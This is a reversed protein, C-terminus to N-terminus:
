DAQPERLLYTMLDRVEKSDLGGLLGPPMLSISMPEISKVQARAIVNRNGGADLLQIEEPSERAVIGAFGTGDKLEIRYGANDPNITASPDEIDKLVSAYDRHVLNSLDPGVEGGRGRMLHCISCAARGYFLKEGAKWDGGALEPIVAKGSLVNGPSAWPVLVRRLPLARPRPDDGTSWHIELSPEAGPSTELAAEFPIWAKPSDAVLRVVNKGVRELRAGTAVKVDLPASATFLVEVTEATKIGNDESSGEQFVPRLMSQLDLQGRLHLRGSERLRAFFRAHEASPASLERAVHLDPHPLWLESREGKESPAWEAMVGSLDYALGIYGDQPLAASHGKLMQKRSRDPLSLSYQVAITRPQTRIFLSRADRSLAASVVPISEPPHELQRTVAVYGPRLKEYREGAVAYRGAQLSTEHSLSRWMAPDLPRDFEIRTETPSAPYILAPRAAGDVASLKFLRGPGNPGSGWDPKGTHAAVILDGTPSLACDVPMAQMGAFIQTQAVYGSSTKVLKTRYLKGRSMGTLLADDAWWAPGFRGASEASANFRFGCVSQHQPGYDFVSPEDIVDPLYKPHRPPFGYHRGSQIQLLEDFPNGNPLWTAGEQDSAFLDGERNIQLSVLYRVGTAIQTVSKGDASIHLVCGRWIRPDYRSEGEPGVLYPRNYAANGMSVFFSGDPAIALGLAEDVRRHLFLKSQALAPDDWGAVAIDRTEPIGDGDADRFRAIEKRHLVYLAGDHFAMGIPYDSSTKSWITTISDEVGDGDTDRLQHVRGDYGATFLRGDPSYVVNNQNTLAVPLERAYFGPVFFQVPPLLSSAETATKTM